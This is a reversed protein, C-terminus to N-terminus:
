KSTFCFPIESGTSNTALKLSPHVTGDFKALWLSVSDTQSSQYLFTQNDVWTMSIVSDTDLGNLIRHFQVTSSDEMQISRPNDQLQFIAMTGAKDLGILHVLQGNLLITDQSGDISARHLEGFYDSVSTLNLQYVVTQLDSSFLIVGGRSQISAFATEEGLSNVQWINTPANLDNAFDSPPISAVYRNSDSAWQPVPLFYGDSLPIPSFDLTDLLTHNILSLLRISSSSVVALWKGDPSPFTRVGEASTLLQTIGSGDANAISLEQGPMSSLLIDNRGSIIGVAVLTGSINTPSPTGQQTANANLLVKPSLTAPDVEWLNKHLTFLVQGTQNNAILSTATDIDSLSKTIGRQRLWLKGNLSYYINFPVTTFILEPNETATIGPKETPTTIRTAQTQTFTVSPEVSSTRLNQNKLILVVIGTLLIFFFVPLLYRIKLFRTSLVFPNKNDTRKERVTKSRSQEVQKKVGSVFIQREVEETGKKAALDNPDIELVRQFCDLKQQPDKVAKAMMLWADKHDPHEAILEALLRAAQESKGRTILRRASDLESM